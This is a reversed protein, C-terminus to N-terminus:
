RTSRPNARALAKPIAEIPGIGMVEPAVGAVSYARFAALPKIGLRERAGPEHRRGRGRRREDAFRQGGDRHRGPRLFARKALVEPTTDARVSEDQDFTVVQGM